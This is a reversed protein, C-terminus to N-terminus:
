TDISWIAPGEAAAGQAAAIGSGSGLLVAAMLVARLRM